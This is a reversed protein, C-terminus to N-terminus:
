MQLIQGHRMSPSVNVQSSISNPSLPPIEVQSMQLGRENDASQNNLTSPINIM